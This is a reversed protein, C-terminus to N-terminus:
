EDEGEIDGMIKLADDLQKVIMTGNGSEREFISKANRLARAVQDAQDFGIRLGQAVVSRKRKTAM